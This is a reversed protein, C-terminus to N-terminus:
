QSTLERKRDSTRAPILMQNAIVVDRVHLALLMELSARSTERTSINIQTAPLLYVVDAGPLSSIHNISLSHVSCLRIYYM